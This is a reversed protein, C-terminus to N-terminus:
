FPLDDDTTQSNTENNKHENKFLLSGDWHKKESEWASKAESSIEKIPLPVVTYKREMKEGTGTVKIDYDALNKYSPDSNSINNIAELLTKQTITIYRVDDDMWVPFHWFYKLDVNDPAEGASKLHTCVRDEWYLYGEVPADLFRFINDGTKLKPFKSEGGSPINMQELDIM